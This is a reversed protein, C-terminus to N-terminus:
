SNLEPERSLAPGVTQEGKLGAHLSSSSSSSSGASCHAESLLDSIGKKLFQHRKKTSASSVASLIYHM